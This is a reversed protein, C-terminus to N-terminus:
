ALLDPVGARDLAVSCHLRITRLVALVALLPSPPFIMAQDRVWWAGSPAFRICVRM